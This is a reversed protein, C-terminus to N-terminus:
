LDSQKRELISSKYMKKFQNLHRESMVKEQETFSSFQKEM